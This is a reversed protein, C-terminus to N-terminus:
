PSGDSVVVNVQGSSSYPDEYSITVEDSLEIVGDERPAEGLGRGATVDRGAELQANFDNELTQQLQSGDAALTYIENGQYQSTGEESIVYTGDSGTVDSGPGHDASLDFQVRQLVLTEAHDQEGAEVPQGLDLSAESTTKSNGLSPRDDMEACVDKNLRADWTGAPSDTIHVEEGELGIDVGLHREPSVDVGLHREQRQQSVEDDYGTNTMLAAEGESLQREHLYDERVQVPDERDDKSSDDDSQIDVTPGEMSPVTKVDSRYETTVITPENEVDDVDKQFNSPSESRTESVAMETSILPESPMDSTMDVGLKNQGRSSSSSSRNSVDDFVQVPEYPQDSVEIQKDNEELEDKKENDTKRSTAPSSRESGSDKEEHKHYGNERVVENQKLNDVDQADAAPMSARDNSLPISAGDNTETVNQNTEVHDRSEAAWKKAATNTETPIETAPSTKLVYPERHPNYKGGSISYEEDHTVTYSNKKKWRFCSGM